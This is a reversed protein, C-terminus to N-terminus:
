SAQELFDRAEAIDNCIWIDADKALAADYETTNDLTWVAVKIGAAQYEHAKASTLKALPVFLYSALAKVAAVSPLPASAASDAVYGRLPFGATKAWKVHDLNFSHIIVQNKLGRDNVATYLKKMRTLSWTGKTEVTAMLGPHTKLFDLAQNGSVPHQDTNDDNGNGDLDRPLELWLKKIDSLLWNKVYQKKSDSVNTNENLTSNHLDVLEGDSYGSRPKTWQLDFDIVQAGQDVAWQYAKISHEPIGYKNQAADSLGRHAVLVSPAAASAVQAGLVTFAIVAAAVATGLRHYNPM